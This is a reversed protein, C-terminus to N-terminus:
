QGSEVRGPLRYGADEIQQRGRDSLLYQYFAHAVPNQSLLIMQQEIDPYLHSPIRRHYGQNGDPLQKLQALSVLGAPVAGTAVFQFAQSVNEGMVLTPASEGPLSGLVQMAAEGYPALRPNAIALRQLQGISELEPLPQTGWLVLQGLAYTQRSGAVGRGEAELLAPRRSDAALFLDFPAGSVIQAYHQGTSGASLKLEHGTQAAFDEALQQSSYFFNSAVAVLAEGAYAPNSCILLTLVLSRFATSM